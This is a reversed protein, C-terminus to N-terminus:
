EEWLLPLPNDHIFICQRGAGEVIRRIKDVHKDEVKGISFVGILWPGSKDNSWELEGKLASIPRSSKLWKEFTGFVDEPKQANAFLKDENRALYYRGDYVFVIGTNKEFYEKLASELANGLEKQCGTVFILFLFAFGFLFISADKTRKMKMTPKGMM